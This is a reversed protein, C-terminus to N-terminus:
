SLLTHLFLSQSKKSLTQTTLVKPCILQRSLKQYFALVRNNTKLPTLCDLPTPTLHEKTLM